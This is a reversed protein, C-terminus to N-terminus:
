FNTGSGWCERNRSEGETKLDCESFAETDLWLITMDHERKKSSAAVM